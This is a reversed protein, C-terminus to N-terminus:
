IGHKDTWCIWWAVIGFLYIIGSFTILKSKRISPGEGTDSTLYKLYGILGVFAGVDGAHLATGQHEKAYTRTIFTHYFFFILPVSLQFTSFLIYFDFKLGNPTDGLVRRLKEHFAADFNTGILLIAWFMASVILASRLAYQRDIKDNRKVSRNMHNGIM